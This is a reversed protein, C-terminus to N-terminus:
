GGLEGIVSAAADRINALHEPEHDMFADVLGILTHANPIADAGTFRWHTLRELRKCASQSVSVSADLRPLQNLLPM